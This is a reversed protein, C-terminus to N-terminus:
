PWASLGTLDAFVNYLLIFAGVFGPVVTLVLIVRWIAVSRMEIARTQQDFDNIAKALDAPHASIAKNFRHHVLARQAMAVIEWAIYVILSFGVLLATWMIARHSLHDKVFGWLAFLGAYGLLIITKSYAEAKQFLQNQQQIFENLKAPDVQGGATEPQFPSCGLTVHADNDYPNFNVYNVRYLVRRGALDIM